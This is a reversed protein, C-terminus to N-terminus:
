FFLYFDDASLKKSLLTKAADIDAVVAANVGTTNVEELRSLAEADDPPNLRHSCSAHIFAHPRKVNFVWHLRAHAKLIKTSCIRCSARGPHVVDAVPIGTTTYFHSSVPVPPTAAAVPQSPPKGVVHESKSSEDSSSDVSSEEGRKKNEKQKGKRRRKAVPASTAERLAELLPDLEDAETQATAPKVLSLRSLQGIDVLQTSCLPGDLSRHVVSSFDWEDELMGRASDKVLDLAVSFNTARELPEKLEIHGDSEVAKLLFLHKPNGSLRTTWYFSAERRRAHKIRVLVEGMPKHLNRVLDHLNKGLKSANQVHKADRTLCLGPHKESCPRAKRRRRSLGETDFVAAGDRQLCVEHVSKGGLKTGVLKRSSVQLTRIGGSFRGPRNDSSETDFIYKDLREVSLPLSSTGFSHLLAPTASAPGSAESAQASRPAPIPANVRKLLAAVNKDTLNKAKDHMCLVRWEQRVRNRLEQWEQWTWPQLRAAKAERIVAKEFFLFTGLKNPRLSGKPPAHRRRAMQATTATVIRTVRALTHSPGGDSYQNRKKGRKVDGGTAALIQDIESLGREQTTGRWRQVMTDDIIGAPGTRAFGKGRLTNVFHAHSTEMDCITLLPPTNGAFDMLPGQALIYEEPQRHRTSAKAKAQMRQVFLENACCKEAAMFGRAKQLAVDASTAECAALMGYLSADDQLPARVRSEFSGYCRLVMGRHRKLLDAADASGGQVGFLSCQRLASQEFLLRTIAAMTKDIHGGEVIFSGLYSEGHKPGLGAAVLKEKVKGGMSFLRSNREACFVESLFDRVPSTVVSLALMVSATRNHGWFVGAKRERKKRSKSPDEDVRVESDSDTGAASQRGKRWGSTGRQMLSHVNALLGTSSASRAAECWKKTAGASVRAWLKCCVKRFAKKMKNRAHGVSRCCRCYHQPVIENWDGNFMKMFERIDELTADDEGAQRFMEIDLGTLRM